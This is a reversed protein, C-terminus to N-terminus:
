GSKKANHVGGQILRGIGVTAIGNTWSCQEAGTEFVPTTRFYYRSPSVLHRRSADRLEDILTGPFVIRAGYSMHIIAGDDTLLV